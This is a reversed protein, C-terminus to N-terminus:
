YIWQNNKTLRPWTNHIRGVHVRVACASRAKYPCFPCTHQPLKGCIYRLHGILSGRSKYFKNCKKCQFKEEEDDWRIDNDWNIVDDVDCDESKSMSRGTSENTNQASKVKRKRKVVRGETAHSLVIQYTEQTNKFKIEKPVTTLSKSEVSPETSEVNQVRIRPNQYTRDEVESEKVTVSPGYQFIGSEITSGPETVDPNDPLISIEVTSPFHESTIQNLDSETTEVVAPHVTIVPIAESTLEEANHILTGYTKCHNQDFTVTFNGDKDMAVNQVKDNKETALEKENNPAYITIIRTPVKMSTDEEKKAFLEEQKQEKTSETEVISTEPTTWWKRASEEVSQLIMIRRQCDPQAGRCTSEDRSTDKLTEKVSKRDVRSSDATNVPLQKHINNSTANDDRLPLKAARSIRLQPKRGQPTQDVSLQDAHKMVCHTRLHARQKARYPCFNCGFQPEKNCEYRQHM